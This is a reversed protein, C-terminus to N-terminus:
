VAYIGDAFRLVEVSLLVDVWTGDSITWDNGGLSDIVYDGQLGAFIMRDIGTGGDVTDNGQSFIFTDNGGGAQISDDGDAGNFQNRADNGIILDDFASGVVREFNVFTDGAADGFQGTGDVLNVSVGDGSKAYSLTDVGDGGDMSDAGAGGIVIDNGGMGSITDDGGAGSMLNANDDGTLQDDYRSGLVGEFNVFSDGEAGGGTGTHTGLNVVVAERSDSYILIDKGCGGDLSDAGAGGTVRDDGDGGFITDDGGGGRVLNDLGNGTILNSIDGGRVSTQHTTLTLEEGSAATVFNEYHLTYTEQGADSTYTTIDHTLEFSISLGLEEGLDVRGELVTFEAEWKESIIPIGVFASGFLLKWDLFAGIKISFTSDVATILSYDATVTFEGEGEPTEFEFDDGMAGSLTEGLSTTLEVGISSDVIVDQVLNAEAVLKADFLGLEVGASIIGFDFDAGWPGLEFFSALGFELSAFPSSEGHLVLQDLGGEVPISEVDDYEFEPIDIKAEFYEGLAFTLVNGDLGGLDALTTHEILTFDVDLDVLNGDFITGSVSGDDFFTEYSGHGEIHTNVNLAAHVGLEVYSEAADPGTADITLDNVEFASTDLHAGTTGDGDHVAASTDLDLSTDMHGLDLHAVGTLGLTVDYDGSVTIGAEATVLVLDVGGSVDFSGSGTDNWTLQSFDYELATGASAGFFGNTTTLAVM